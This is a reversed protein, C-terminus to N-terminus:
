NENRKASSAGKGFVMAQKERDLKFKFKELKYNTINGEASTDSYSTMECYYVDGWDAFCVPTILFLTILLNKM